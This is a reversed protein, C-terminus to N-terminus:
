KTEYKKEINGIVNKERERGYMYKKKRNKQYKKKM